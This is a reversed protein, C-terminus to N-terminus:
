LAIKVVGVKTVSVNELTIALVTAAAVVQWRAISAWSDQLVCAREKSAIARIRASTPATRSAPRVATGQIATVSERSAGGVVM